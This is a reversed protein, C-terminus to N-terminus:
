KRSHFSNGPLKVEFQGETQGGKRQEQHSYPLPGPDGHGGYGSGYAQPPLVPTIAM